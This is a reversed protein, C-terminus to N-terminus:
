RCEREVFLCMCKNVRVRMWGGVAGVGVDVGVSVGVGVGGGELEVCTKENM